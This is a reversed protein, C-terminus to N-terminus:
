LGPLVQTHEIQVAKLEHPNLGLLSLISPAIQTTEVPAGATVGGAHGPLVVLIPVHRDSPM